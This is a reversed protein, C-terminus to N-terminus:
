CCGVRGMVLVSGACDTLVREATSRTRELQGLVAARVDPRELVAACWQFHGDATGSCANAGILAYVAKFRLVDERQAGFAEVFLDTLRQDTRLAHPGYMDFFGSTLAMELVPDALVTLFGRDLVATLRCDEDVLVNEPCVDGHQLALPVDERSALFEDCARM